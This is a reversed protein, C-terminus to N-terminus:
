SKLQPPSAAGLKLITGGFGVVWGHTRDVLYLRELAHPRQISEVSWHLGGDTTHLLTGQSGVAWGEHSDIFKIDFLDATSNPQQAAWTRGGDITRFMQTGGVTWAFNGIVSVASLRPATANRLNTSQWTMGYDDSRLITGGAGVLFGHGNNAVTGGLLLHNTATRQPMWHAGGDITAFLVGMEGFVWGHQSDAFVLRTFRVNADATNLFVRQWTAGGDTTNLLYSSQENSSLKFPDRQALLWGNREDFFYVDRFDDKIVLAAKKWTAGGDLTQLLTGNSGAVWGRNQDIFHVAHLWSM